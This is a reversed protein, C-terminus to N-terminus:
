KFKKFIEKPMFALAMGVFVLVLVLTLLGQYTAVDMGTIVYNYTTNFNPLIISPLLIFAITLGISGLIIGTIVDKAGIM